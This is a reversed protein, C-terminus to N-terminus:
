WVLKGCLLWKLTSMKSVIFYICKKSFEENKPVVHRIFHGWKSGFSFINEQSLLIHSFKLTYDCM